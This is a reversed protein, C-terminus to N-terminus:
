RNLLLPFFFEKEKEIMQDVLGSLDVGLIFESSEIVFGDEFGLEKKRIKEQGIEKFLDSFENKRNHPVFVLCDGKIKGKIEEIKKRFIEKKQHVSLDKAIEKIKSIAKKMIEKKFTLVEMGMEFDKEKEYNTLIKEKEESLDKEKKDRLLNIGEEGQRDIEALDSSGGKELSDIEENAEKKIQNLLNELSM